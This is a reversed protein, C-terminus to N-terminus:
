RSASSAKGGDLFSELEAQKFGSILQDGVILTPTGTIGLKSVLEADAAVKAAGAACKTLTKSPEGAYMAHLAADRDQSCMIHEAKAAAQPHIGSVFYILRRVPKGETAKTLWFKELAQCYPCDPDSFEIVTPASAPGTALAKAPDILNLRHKASAEQALATVNVGNKDYVTAFLVHGSDPAYYLVRGGAIAQYLTGKVPAPGFEEFKLTTFTEHLQRQAADAAARLAETDDPAALVANSGLVAAAYAAALLLFRNARKAM